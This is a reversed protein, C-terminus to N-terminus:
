SLCAAGADSKEMIPNEGYPNLIDRIHDSGKKEGYNKSTAMIEMISKEQSILPSPCISRNKWLKNKGYNINPAGGTPL